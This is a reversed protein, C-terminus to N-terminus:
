MENNNSWLSTHTKEIPNNETQIGESPIVSENETSVDELIEDIGDNISPTVNINQSELSSQLPENNVPENFDFLPTGYGSESSVSSSNQNTYDNVTNEITSSDTNQTPMVQENLTPVNEQEQMIENPITTNNVSNFHEENLPQSFDVENTYINQNNNNSVESNTIQNTQVPTIVPENVNSLTNADSVELATVIPESVQESMYPVDNSIENSINQEQVSNEKSFALIPFFIYPLFFLGLTFTRSKGLKKSIGDYIVFMAYINAIPICLLLIYWWPKEAIQCMTYVNYIPVLSAWGPKGAKKFIKWMSVLMLISAVLCILWIIAVFILMGGILGNVSDAANYGYTTDVYYNTNM